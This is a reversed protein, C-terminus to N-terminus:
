TSHTSGTDEHEEGFASSEEETLSVNSETQSESISHETTPKLSLRQLLWTLERVTPMDEM